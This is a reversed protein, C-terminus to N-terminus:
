GLKWFDGTLGVSEFIRNAEEASPRRFDADLRGGYWRQSLSWAQQITMTAGREVNRANCWRM